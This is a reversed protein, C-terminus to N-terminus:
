VNNEVYYICIINVYRNRFHNTPLKRVSYWFLTCIVYTEALSWKINVMSNRQFCYTTEHAPHIQFFILHGFLVINRVNLVCVKRLKWTYICSLSNYWKDIATARKHSLSYIYNQIEHMLCNESNVVLINKTSIWYFINWIYWKCVYPVYNFFSLYAKQEAIQQRFPIWKINYRVYM